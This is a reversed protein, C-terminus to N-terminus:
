ILSTENIAQFKKLLDSKPSTLESTRVIYSGCKTYRPLPNRCHRAIAAVKKPSFIKETDRILFVKCFLSISVKDASLCCEQNPKLFPPSYIHMYLGCNRIFNIMDGCKQRLSSPPSPLSPPPDQGWAFAMHINMAIILTVVVMFHTNTIAM